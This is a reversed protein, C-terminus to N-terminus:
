RRGATGSQAQDTLLSKARLWGIIDALAQQLVVGNSFTHDATPWEVIRTSACKGASRWCRDGQYLDMFERATLDRGSILILTAGDFQELGSLMRSRFDGKRTHLSVAKSSRADRGTQLFEHLAQMFPFTGSFVKTWFTRQFIRKGYYHKLYAKAEGQSTRVWPNLLILARVREDSNCYILSASAADCLGMLVIQRVGSAVAFHDIAARIDEATSDFTVQPGESDGMGRYDFRFVPIGSAALARAMVVFQRHSGVRYQPGGVIIVVGVTADKAGEHVIGM